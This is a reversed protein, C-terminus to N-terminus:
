RNGEGGELAAPERGQRFYRDIQDQIKARWKQSAARAGENRHVPMSDLADIAVQMLVCWEREREALQARLSDLRNLAEWDEDRVGSGEGLRKRLITREAELTAIVMEIGIRIKDEIDLLRQEQCRGCFGQRVHECRWLKYIRVVNEALALYTVEPDAM